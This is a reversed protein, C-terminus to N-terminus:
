NKHDCWKCKTYRMDQSARTAITTTAAAKKATMEISKTHLLQNCPSCIKFANSYNAKTNVEM